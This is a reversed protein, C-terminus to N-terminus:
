RLEQRIGTFFDDTRFVDGDFFVDRVDVLLFATLTMYFFAFCNPLPILWGM